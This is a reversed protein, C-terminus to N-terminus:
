DDVMGEEDEPTGLIFPSQPVVDDMEIDVIRKVRKPARDRASLYGDRVKQAIVQRRYSRKSPLVAIMLELCEAFDQTHVSIHGASELNALITGLEVARRMVSVSKGTGISVNQSKQPTAQVYRLARLQENKPYKRVVDVLDILHIDVRSNQWARILEASGKRMVEVMRRAVLESTGILSAIEPYDLYQGKNEAVWNYMKWMQVAADAQKLPTRANNERLNMALAQGEDVIRVMVHVTPDSIGRKEANRRICECRGFGSIVSYAKEAFPKPNPRVVVPADQGQELSKQLEDLDDKWNGTRANWLEDIDLESYRVDLTKGNLQARIIDLLENSM